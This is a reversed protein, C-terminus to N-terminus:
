TVLSVDDSLYSFSSMCEPLCTSAMFSLLMFIRSVTLIFVLILYEIPLKLLLIAVAAFISLLSSFSNSSAINLSTYLSFFYFFIM